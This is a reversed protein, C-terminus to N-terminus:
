YIVKIYTNRNFSVKTSICQQNMIISSMALLVISCLKDLVCIYGMLYLGAKKHKPDSGLMKDSHKPAMKFPLIGVFLFCVFLGWVM